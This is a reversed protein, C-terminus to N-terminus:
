SKIRVLLLGCCNVQKGDLAIVAWDSEEFENRGAGMVIDKIQDGNLDACRPSSYTGLGDFHNYWILQPQPESSCAIFLLLFFYSTYKL